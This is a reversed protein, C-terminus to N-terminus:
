FLLAPPFWLSASPFTSPPTSFFFFALWDTFPGGCEGRMGKPGKGRPIRLRVYPLPWWAIPIDWPGKLVWMWTVHLVACCSLGVQACMVHGLSSPSHCHWLMTPMLWSPFSTCICVWASEPDNLSESSPPLRLSHKSFVITATKIGQILLRSTPTIACKERGMWFYRHLDSFRRPHLLASAPWALARIVVERIEIAKHPLLNTSVRLLLCPHASSAPVQEGFGIILYESIQM